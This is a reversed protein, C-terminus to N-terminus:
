KHTREIYLGIDPQPCNLAILADGLLTEILIDASLSLQNNIHVTFHKSVLHLGAITDAGYESMLVPKSHLRYWNTAEEIVNHAIQVTSGANAYWGNYRNFSIM